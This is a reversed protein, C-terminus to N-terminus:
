ITWSTAFLWVYSLSKWKVEAKKITWSECGYIVVPFVMAKVIHVNTALTIGRSKLISELNTMIKRGLLLCKKFNWPKLWWGYHNQLGLFSFGDSNGTVTEVKKGKQSFTFSSLSFVPKFSLMWFVLIMADTGIVEHCVSPSVISVTASKIIQPAGFDSCITVAAM